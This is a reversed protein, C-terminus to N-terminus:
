AVLVCRTHERKQIDPIEREFEIEKERTGPGGKRVKGGHEWPRLIVFFGSRIGKSQQGLFRRFRVGLGSQVSTKAVGLEHLVGYDEILPPVDPAYIPPM